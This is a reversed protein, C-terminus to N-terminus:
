MPKLYKWLMGLVLSATWQAALGPHGGFRRELTESQTDSVLAALIQMGPGDPADRLMVGLGLTTDHIQRVRQAARAVVGVQEAPEVDLDLTKRLANADSLVLGGRFAPDAAQDDAKRQTLRSSITGGTNLEVTALTQQRDTLLGAIVGELTDEDAGFIVGGIRERVQAEMAALLSRAEDDSGARAALRVDIQGAKASLGIVPNTSQELDAILADIRSEGEGVTHLTRVRIVQDLNFRTKLYPIVAHELLYMMERPVGPLSIIARGAHEVVFAPATGVPNEIPQAGDPVYAQRRNNDSMTRAFARFRAEIQALLEPKFVLERGVARAVAPRTVDDVTPGLGGGILIVDSRSLAVRIADVMRLEDDGVHTIFALELGIDRLARAIHPSNTDVQEGLMLESGTAIIEAQM